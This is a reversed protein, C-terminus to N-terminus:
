RDVANAPESGGSGSVKTAIWFWMLLMATPAREILVDWAAVFRSQDSRMAPEHMTLSDSRLSSTLSKFADGNRMFCTKVVHSKRSFSQSFSSGLDYPGYPRYM